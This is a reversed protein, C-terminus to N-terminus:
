LLRSKACRITNTLSIVGFGAVYSPRAIAVQGIVTRPDPEDPEYLAAALAEPLRLDM